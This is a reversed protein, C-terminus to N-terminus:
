KEQDQFSSKAADLISIFVQEEQPVHEYFHMKKVNSFLCLKKELDMICTKLKEEVSLM